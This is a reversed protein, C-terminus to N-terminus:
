SQLFLSYIKCICSLVPLSILMLRNLVRPSRCGTTKGHDLSLFLHGKLIRKKMNRINNKEVM